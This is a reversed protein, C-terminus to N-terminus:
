DKRKVYKSMRFQDIGLDQEVFFGNREWFRKAESNKANLEIIKCKNKNIMKTEILEYGKSGYGKNRYPEKITYNDISCSDALILDGIHINKKFVHFNMGDQKINILSKINM